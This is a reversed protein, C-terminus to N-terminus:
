GGGGVRAGQRSRRKEIYINDWKWVCVMEDLRKRERDKTESEERWKNEWIESREPELWKERVVSLVM